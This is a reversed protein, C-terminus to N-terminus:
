IELILNVLIIVDLVNVIEDQNLDGCICNEGFGLICENVM